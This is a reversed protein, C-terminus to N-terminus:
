VRVVRVRELLEPIHPVNFHGRGSLAVYEAQPLLNKFIAQNEFSVVPDDESHFFVIHQVVDTIPSISELLDFSTQPTSQPGVYEPAVLFLANIFNKPKQESLYKLLFMAGLSHGVLICPRNLAEMVKEFWLKWLDYEANDAMPMRPLLVDFDDGLESQLGQKWNPVYKMRELYVDKTQLDEVFAEKSPFTEGGGLVLVTTKMNVLIGYREPFLVSHM